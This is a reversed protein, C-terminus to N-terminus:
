FVAKNLDNVADAALFEPRKWVQYAQPSYSALPRGAQDFLVIKGAPWGEMNGAVPFRESAPTVQFGTLAEEIARVKLIEAPHSGARGAITDRLGLLFTMVEDRTFLDLGPINM